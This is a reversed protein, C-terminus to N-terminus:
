LNVFSAQSKGEEGTYSMEMHVFSYEVTVTTDSHSRTAQIVKVGALRGDTCVINMYEEEQGDRRNHFYKMSLRVPSGKSLLNMLTPLSPGVPIDLEIRDYHTHGSVRGGASIDRRNGFTVHQIEIWDGHGNETKSATALSNGGIVAQDSEFRVYSHSLASAAISALVLFRSFM